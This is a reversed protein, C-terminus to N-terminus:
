LGCGLDREYEWEQAKEYRYMYTEPVANDMQRVDFLEKITGRVSGAQLFLISIL